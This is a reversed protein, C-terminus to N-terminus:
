TFKSYRIDHSMLQLARASSRPLRTRKPKFFGGRGHRAPGSFHGCSLRPAGFGGASQVVPHPIEREEIKDEAFNASFARLGPFQLRNGDQAMKPLLFEVQGHCAVLIAMVRDLAGLVRPVKSWQIWCKASKSKDTAFKSFICTARPVRSKNGNRATKSKFFERRSHGAPGSFHGYSPRPAGFGAASQVILDPMQRDENQRECCTSFICKAGPLPSKNGNRPMKPKFFRGRGHGAPCSFHGYSPRPPGFHVASQAMTHPTEREKIKDRAFNASFARLRLFDRNIEM